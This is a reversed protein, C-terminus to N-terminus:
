VRLSQERAQDELQKVYRKVARKSWLPADSGDFKWVKLLVTDYPNDDNERILAFKLM